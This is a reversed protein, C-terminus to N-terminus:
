KYAIIRLTAEDRKEELLDLSNRLSEENRRSDFNEKKYTDMGIEVLIVVEMGFALLFPTEGM